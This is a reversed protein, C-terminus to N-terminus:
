AIRLWSVHLLPVECQLELGALVPQHFSGVDSTFARVDESNLRAIQILEIRGIERQSVPQQLRNRVREESNDRGSRQTAGRYGPLLQKARIRLVVAHKATPRRQAVRNVMGERQFDFLAERQSK